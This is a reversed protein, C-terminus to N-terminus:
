MDRTNDERQASSIAAISCHSRTLELSATRKAIRSLPADSPVYPVFLFFFFRLSIAIKCAFHVFRFADISVIPRSSLLIEDLENSCLEPISRHAYRSILKRAIGCNRCLFSVFNTIYIYISYLAYKHTSTFPAECSCCGICTTANVQDVNSALMALIVRM